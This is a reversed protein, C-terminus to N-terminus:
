EVIVTGKFMNMGCNFTYEGEKDPTFTLKTTGAKLNVNNLDFDPMMFTSFCSNDGPNTINLEVPVGKKVKIVNPTYGTPTVMMEIKPNTEKTIDLETQKPTTTTTNEQTQAAESEGPIKVLDSSYLFLFLAILVLGGSLINFPSIGKTDLTLKGNSDVIIFLLVLGLIIAYVGLLIGLIITPNDFQLIAGLLAGMIGSVVGTASGTLIALIGIPQGAIFGLIFGILTGLGVPFFLEGSLIGSIYGALLGSMLTLVMVIVLGSLNALKNKNRHLLFISSGTMLSMIVITFISLMYM